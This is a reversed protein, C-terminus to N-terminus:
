VKLIQFVVSRERRKDRWEVSVVVQIVDATLFAEATPDVGLGSLGKVTIVMRGEPLGEEVDAKWGELVEDFAGGDLPANPGFEDSRWEYQSDNDNRADELIEYCQVYNLRRFEELSDTAISTAKTMLKGSNINQGGFVFMTMISILVGALLTSAALVEILSYGAETRLSPNPRGTM